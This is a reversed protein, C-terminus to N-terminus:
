TADLSHRSRQLQRLWYFSSTSVHHMVATLIGGGTTLSSITTNTITAGAADTTATFMGGGGGAAMDTSGMETPDGGDCHSTTLLDEATEEGIAHMEYEVTPCTSTSTLAM